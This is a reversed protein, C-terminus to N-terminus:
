IDLQEETNKKIWEDMGIKDFRLSRGIRVVFPVRKQWVLKYLMGESLGLYEAAEKIKLLRKEM